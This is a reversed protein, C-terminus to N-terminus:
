AASGPRDAGFADWSAHREYRDGSGYNLDRALARATLQQTPLTPRPRLTDPDQRQGPIHVPQPESDRKPRKPGFPTGAFHPARPADTCTRSQETSEPM